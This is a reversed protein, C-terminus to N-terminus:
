GVELKVARCRLQQEKELMFVGIDAAIKRKSECVVPLQQFQPDSPLASGLWVALRAWSCSYKKAHIVFM